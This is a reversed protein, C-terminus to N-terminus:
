YRKDFPQHLLAQLQRLNVPNLRLRLLAIGFLASALLWFTAPEPTVVDGTVAFNASDAISDPIFGQELISPIYYIQAGALGAGGSTMLQTDEYLVYQTNPQLILSPDFVWQGGVVTSTRALIFGGHVPINDVIDTGVNLSFFSTLIATGGAVPTTAPVNSFFNFAIDDWPGGSPTTFSQALTLAATGTGATEEVIITSAQGVLAGLCALMVFTFVRM